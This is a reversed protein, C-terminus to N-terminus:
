HDVRAPVDEATSSSALVAGGSCLRHDDGPPGISVLRLRPRSEVHSGGSPSHKRRRTASGGSRSRSRDAGLGQTSAVNRLHRRARSCVRDNGSHTTSHDDDSLARSCRSADPTRSFAPLTRRWPRANGLLRIVRRQGLRERHPDAGFGRITERLFRRVNGQRWFSVNTLTETLDLLRADFRRILLISTANRSRWRALRWAGDNYKPAPTRLKANMCKLRTDRKVDEQRM